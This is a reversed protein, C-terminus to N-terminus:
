RKFSSINMVTAFDYAIIGKICLIGLMRDKRAVQLGNRRLSAEVINLRKCMEVDKAVISECDALWDIDVISLWKACYAYASPHIKTDKIDVGGLREKLFPLILTKYEFCLDKEFEKLAFSYSYNEGEHKHHPGELCWTDEFEKIECDWTDTESNYKFEIPRRFQFKGVFSLTIPLGSSYSQHSDSTDVGNGLETGTMNM